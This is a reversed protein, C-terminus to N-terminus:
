IGLYTSRIAPDGLLERSSGELKVRGTEIVTGRAAVELAKRLNQEV